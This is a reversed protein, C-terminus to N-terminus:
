CTRNFWPTFMLSGFTQQHENASTFVSSHVCYCPEYVFMFSDDQENRRECISRQLYFFTFAFRGLLVSCYRITNAVVARLAPWVLAFKVNVLTRRPVVKTKQEYKVVNHQPPDIIQIKHTLNAVNKLQKNLTEVFFNVKMIIPLTDIGNTINSTQVICYITTHTTSNQMCLKMRQNLLKSEFLKSLRRYFRQASLLCCQM